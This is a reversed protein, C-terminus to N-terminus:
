KKLNNLYEKRYEIGKSREDLIAQSMRGVGGTWRGGNSDGTINIDLLCNRATAPAACMNSDFNGVLATCNFLIQYIKFGNLLDSQLEEPSSVGLSNKQFVCNYWKNEPLHEETDYILNFNYIKNKNLDKIINLADINDCVLALTNIGTKERLSAAHNMYVEPEYFEAEASGGKVKDTWRIHIALYEGKLRALEQLFSNHSLINQIHESPTALNRMVKGRYERHSTADKFFTKWTHPLSSFKRSSIIENNESIVYEISEDSTLRGTYAKIVKDEIDSDVVDSVNPFYKEIKGDFLKYAAHNNERYLLKCGRMDAFIKKWMCVVLHSGFPWWLNKCYLIKEKYEKKLMFVPQRQWDVNTEIPPVTDVLTFKSFLKDLDKKCFIAHSNSQIRTFSDIRTKDLIPIGCLFYGNKTLMDYFNNAAEFPGNPNIPDGYRGLGDHEISSYSIILDFAYSGRNADEARIFKIKNNKIQIDQYESTTIDTFGQQLCICEIWPSISGAVLIKINRPLDLKSLAELIQKGANPYHRPTIDDLRASNATEIGTSIMESTWVNKSISDMYPHFCPAVQPPYINSSVPVPTNPQFEFNPRLTYCEKFKNVTEEPLTSLDVTYKM